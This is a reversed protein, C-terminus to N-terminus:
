EFNSKKYKRIEYGLIKDGDVKTVIVWGLRRLLPNFINKFWIRHNISNGDEDKILENQLLTFIWRKEKPSLKETNM